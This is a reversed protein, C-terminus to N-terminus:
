NDSISESKDKYRVAVEVTRLSSCWTGFTGATCNQM